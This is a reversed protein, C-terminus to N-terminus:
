LYIQSSSLSKLKPAAVALNLQELIKSLSQTIIQSFFSSQDYFNLVLFWFNELISLPRKDRSYLIM